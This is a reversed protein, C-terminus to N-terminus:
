HKMPYFGAVYLVSLCRYDMTTYETFTFGFCIFSIDYNCIKTCGRKGPKDSKDILEDEDSGSIDQCGTCLRNSKTLYTDLQGWKRKAM